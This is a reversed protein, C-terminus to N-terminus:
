ERDKKVLKKQINEIETKLREIKKEQKSKRLEQKLEKINEMNEKYYETQCTLAVCIADAIDHGGKVETLNLKPFRANILNFMTEKNANAIGAVCKRITPVSVDILLEKNLYFYREILGHVKAIIVLTSITTNDGYQLPQKEKGIICNKNTLNYKEKWENIKAYIMDAQEYVKTETNTRAAYVEEIKKEKINYLAMGSSVSSPDIGISYELDNINEIVDCDQFLLSM